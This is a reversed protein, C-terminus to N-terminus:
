RVTTTIRENSLIEIAAQRADFNVKQMTFDPTNYSDLMEDYYKLPNRQPLMFPKSVNGDDDICAFYIRSHLGDDRRSVFLFWHSDNSWNHWSDSEKSNAITMPIVDGTSLNLLFNDAESHWIPFCGYDAMTFMLFKGDYSPRPHIASKDFERANFITDVREGLTGTSADFDIKCINYQIKNLREPVPEAKASCFYLTKGDPSFVPYTEYNDPSMLLTDLILQHNETDYVFVESSYDFVEIRKSRIEHFGQRTQNTSYACFKGDPHWYPYVMSGRLSDNIAKLWERKAGSSILTAGKSGRVHFTFKEPNTRNSTHCNVCMGSTRTTEFIPTEDFNSLNRQYIGMKGYVEYGPKIRRYTVGWADLPFHSVYITFPQYQFWQGDIKANVVISLSDNNEVLSHWANLEFDAFEGNSIIEKGNSGRVVVYLMDAEEDSLLNFNLPAINRPITVGKYDPFITPQSSVIKVNSPVESCGVFTVACILAFIQIVINKMMRDLRIYM